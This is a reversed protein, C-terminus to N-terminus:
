SRLTPLPHTHMGSHTHVQSHTEQTGESLVKSGRLDACHPGPHPHPRPRPLLWWVSDLAIFRALLCLFHPCNGKPSLSLPHKPNSKMSFRKHQQLQQATEVQFLYYRQLIRTGLSHGLLQMGPLTTSISTELSWTLGAWYSIKPHPWTTWPRGSISFYASTGSHSVGFM